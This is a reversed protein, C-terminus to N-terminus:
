CHSILLMIYHDHYIPVQTPFRQVIEKVLPVCNNAACQVLLEPRLLEPANRMMHLMQKMSESSGSDSGNDSDNSVVSASTESDFDIVTCCKPNLTWTYPRENVRVVAKIGNRIGVVEAIKGLDQKSFSM